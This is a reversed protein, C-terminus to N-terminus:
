SDDRVLPISGRVAFGDSTAEAMVMGGLRSVRERIGKLGIGENFGDAGIGDDRVLMNIGEAVEEIVLRVTQAKGHRFSNM